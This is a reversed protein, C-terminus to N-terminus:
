SQFIEALLMPSLQPQYENLMKFLKEFYSKHESFILEITRQINFNDDNRVFRQHTKYTFLKKNSSDEKEAIMFFGIPCKDNLTNVVDDWNLNSADKHMKSIDLYSCVVYWCEEENILIKIKTANQTKKRIYIIQLCDENKIFHQHVPTLFNIWCQTINTKSSM